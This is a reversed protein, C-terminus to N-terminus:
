KWSGRKEKLKTGEDAGDGYDMVELIKMLLPRITM